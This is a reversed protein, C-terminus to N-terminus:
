MTIVEVYVTPVINNQTDFIKKASANYYYTATFDVEPFVFVFM